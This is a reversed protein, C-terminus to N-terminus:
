HISSYTGSIAQQGTLELQELLANVKCSLDCNLSKVYLLARTVNGYHRKCKEGVLDDPAPKCEIVICPTVLKVLTLIEVGNMCEAERLDRAVYEYYAKVEEDFGHAVLYEHVELDKIATSAVYILEAANEGLKKALKKELFVVYGAINGHLVSHACEHIMLARLTAQSLAKCKEYDLHIRPWGMWAEHAVPYDGILTVGLELAERLLKRLKMETSEYIYIELLEHGQRTRSYLEEVACKITDVFGKPVRGVIEIYM